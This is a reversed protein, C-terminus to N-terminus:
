PQAVAVFRGHTFDQLDNLVHCSSHARGNQDITVGTKAVVVIHSAENLLERAHTRRTDAQLILLKWFHVRENAVRVRQHGDFLEASLNLSRALSPYVVAENDYGPCFCQNIIPAYTFRNLASIGVADGSCVGDDNM